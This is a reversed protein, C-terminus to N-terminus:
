RRALAALPEGWRDLPVDPPLVAYGVLLNFGLDGTAWKAFTEAFREARPACASTREGARCAYGRPVQADLSRDVAAPVLADDVVHGLEHLVVRDVGRAGFARLAAPLDLVVLYHGARASTLGLSRGGTAGVRMEVLGDVLAVLRAADPRSRAVADLVMRRWGDDVGEFRFSADRAAGDLLPMADRQASRADLAYWAGAAAPPAAPTRAPRVAARAALALAALALLLVAIRPPSPV